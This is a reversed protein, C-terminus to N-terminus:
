KVFSKAVFASKGKHLIYLLQMVNADYLRFDGHIQSNKELLKGLITVFIVVPGKQPSEVPSRHIERAFPWNHLFRKWSHWIM